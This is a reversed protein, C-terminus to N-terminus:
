NILGEEKLAGLVENYWLSPVDELKIKGKKIMMVYFKVM